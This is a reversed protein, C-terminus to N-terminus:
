HRNVTIKKLYNMNFHAFVVRVEVSVHTPNQQVINYELQVYFSSSKRYNNVITCFDNPPIPTQMNDKLSVNVHLDGNIKFM